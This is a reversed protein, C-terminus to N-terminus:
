FMLGIKFNAYFRRDFLDRHDDARVYDGSAAAFVSGRGKFLRAFSYTIEGGFAAYGSGLYYYDRLTFDTYCKTDAKYGNYDIDSSNNMKYSARIGVLLSHKENFIFNKRGFIGIKCNEIDQTSRPFYYIDSLKETSFEVGATWNYSDGRTTRMYQLRGEFGAKSSNSRVSKSKIIWKAVEFSNDWEQVYQIGDISRDGYAANLFFTNEKSPKYVANLGISWREDRTTGVMKPTTYSNTVDEIERTYKGSVLLRLKQTTFSYQGGVGMCNANYIRQNDDTSSSISSDVYFGPFNFIYVPNTSMSIKNSATGDERRSYYQYNAGIAHKGLTVTVGPKIEFKSLSVLPRPDHQKAGQGNQYTAEIGFILRDWLKPAAAKVTM